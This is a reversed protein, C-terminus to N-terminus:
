EGRYVPDRKERFAALGELRDSTDLTRGYLEHELLLAEDLPLELGRAIAEKAARVAIPANRAITAAIQQARALALAGDAVEHVLGIARAEAADVRRGTFILEKARAEGVLRPLRQTGGGGPIIGLTTETLGITAGTSMIRIDCALALECGGGLAHGNIAAVVPVSMHAVATITERITGLAARVQEVSMGAREKLDAGACFIREGAGTIIVARADTPVAAVADGLASLLSASFSNGAEPRNLTLTVVDGSRESLVEAM